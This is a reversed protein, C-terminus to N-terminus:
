TLLNNQIVDIRIVVSIVAGFNKQKGQINKGGPVTYTAAQMKLRNLAATESMFQKVHESTIIMDDEFCVFMDYEHLMDKVVFRHQRALSRTIEQINNNSSLRDKVDYSIPSANDWVTLNVSKPLAIRLQSLRSETLSFHSILYFDVQFHEAMSVVSQRAVPLLTNLFRDHGKVTSRKGNDYEALTTMIYLLKTGNSEQKEGTRQRGTKHRTLRGGNNSKHNAIVRQHFNYCSVLLIVICCLRSLIGYNENNGGKGEGLRRQQQKRM